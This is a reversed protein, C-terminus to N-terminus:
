YIKPRAPPQRSLFPARPLIWLGDLLNEFDILNKCVLTHQNNRLMIDTYSGDAKCYIIDQTNYFDIGDQTPVALKEIKGSKLQINNLVSQYQYFSSKTRM